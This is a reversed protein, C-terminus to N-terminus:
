RSNLADILLGNIIGHGKQGYDGEILGMKGAFRESNQNNFTTYLGEIGLPTRELDVKIHALVYDDRDTGDNVRVNLLANEPWLVLSYTYIQNNDGNHGIYISEREVPAVLNILEDLSAHSYTKPRDECKKVLEAFLLKNSKVLEEFGADLNYQM